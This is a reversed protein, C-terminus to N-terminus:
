CYTKIGNKALFSKIEDYDEVGWEELFECFSNRAAEKTLAYMLNSFGAPFKVKEEMVKGETTVRQHPLFAKTPTTSQCQTAM